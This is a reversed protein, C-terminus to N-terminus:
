KTKKSAIPESEKFTKDLRKRIMGPSSDKKTKIFIPFTKYIVVVVVAVLAVIFVTYINFIVNGKIYSM